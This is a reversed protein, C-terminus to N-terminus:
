GVEVNEELQETRPGAIQREVLLLFATLPGVRGLFMAVMILVKGLGDLEATGGLSLGVTALASVSEFVAISMAMDQTLLVAAM